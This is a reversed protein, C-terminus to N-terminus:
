FDYSTLATLTSITVSLTSSASLNTATTWDAPWSGSTLKYRYLYYTIPAYGYNAATFASTTWTATISSKTKSLVVTSVNATPATEVQISNVNTSSYSSTGFSNVAAVRIKIYTGADTSTYSATTMLATM